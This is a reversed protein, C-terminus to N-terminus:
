IADTNYRFANSIAIAQRIASYNTIFNNNSPFRREVGSCCGYVDARQMPLDSATTYVYFESFTREELRSMQESPVLGSVIDYINRGYKNAIHGLQTLVASVAALNRMTQTHGM